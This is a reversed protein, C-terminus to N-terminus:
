ETRYVFDAPQFRWTLGNWHVAAGGLGTGPMFGQWRRMPLATQSAQNRFTLTERATDQMMAKRVAYNLEDHMAPGQFDPVTSRPEGRELALVNMGARTLERALISGVLGMGLIVVEAEPLRKANSTANTAM